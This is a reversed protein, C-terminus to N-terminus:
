GNTAGFRWGTSPYVAVGNVLKVLRRLRGKYQSHPRVDIKFNSAVNENNDNESRQGISYPPNGLIVRIDLAMQWKRRKSNDVLLADVLGRKVAESFTLVHLTKGFWEEQNMGYLRAKEQEAQIKADDSYIRPTDTMYLRKASKIFGSDHVKV